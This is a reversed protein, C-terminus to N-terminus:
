RDNGAPVAGVLTNWMAENPKWGNPLPDGLGTISRLGEVIPDAPPAAALHLTKAIEFMRCLEGALDVDCLEQRIVLLHNAPILGTTGYWSQAEATPDDLLRRCGPPVDMSGMAADIEDEILLSALTEGARHRSGTPRPAHAVPDDAVFTWSRRTPGCSSRGSPSSVCGSYPCTGSLHERQVIWPQLTEPGPRRFEPDRYVNLNAIVSQVRNLPHEPPVGVDRDDQVM